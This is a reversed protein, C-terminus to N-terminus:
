AAASRSTTTVASGCEPCRDPTARVDYGCTRCANLSDRRNRAFLRLVVILLLPSAAATHIAWWPATFISWNVSGGAASGRFRRFGFQSWGADAAAQRDM